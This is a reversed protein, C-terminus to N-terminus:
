TQWPMKIQILVHITKLCEQVHKIGCDCYVKTRIVEVWVCVFAASRFPLRMNFIFQIKFQPSSLFKYWTFVHWWGFMLMDHCNPLIVNFYCFVVIVTCICLFGFLRYFGVGQIVDNLDLTVEACHLAWFTKRSYIIYVCLTDTFHHVIDFLYIYSVHGLLLFKRCCVRWTNCLVNKLTRDYRFKLTVFHSAENNM